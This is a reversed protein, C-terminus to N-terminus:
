KTLVYLCMDEHGKFVALNYDSYKHLIKFGLESLLIDFEHPNHYKIFFDEEQTEILKGNEFLKYRSLYSVVNVEKFIPKDITLKVMSKDKCAQRIQPEKKIKLMDQLTEIGFVFIGGKKLLEYILKLAQLLEDDKTLLCISSSAIFVYDFKHLSNYTKFSAQMLKNNNGTKLLAQKCRSLMEASIDFGEIDFNLKAFNLLVRGSGCMPELIKYNQKAFSLYFDVENKPAAPKDLDYFLSCLSGYFNKKM